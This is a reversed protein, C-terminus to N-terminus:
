AEVDTPHIRQAAVAATAPVFNSPYSVGPGNSGNGSPVRALHLERLAAPLGPFQQDNFQQARGASLAANQLWNFLPPEAITGSEEWVIVARVLRDAAFRDLEEVLSGANISNLAGSIRIMGLSARPGLRETKMALVDRQMANVDIERVADGFKLQLVL